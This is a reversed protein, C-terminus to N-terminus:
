FYATSRHSLLIDYSDTNEQIRYQHDRSGLSRINGEGLEKPMTPLEGDVRLSSHRDERHNSVGPGDRLHDEGSQLTYSTLKPLRTFRDPAKIMSNTVM